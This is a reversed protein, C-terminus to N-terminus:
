RLYSSEYKHLLTFFVEVSQAPSQFEFAVLLGRRTVEIFERPLDYSPNPFVVNVVAPPCHVRRRPFSWPDTPHETKEL